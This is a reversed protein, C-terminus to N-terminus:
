TWPANGRPNRDQGGSQHYSARVRRTIGRDPCEGSADPSSPAPRTRPRLAELATPEAQLEGALRHVNYLRRNLDDFQSADMGQSRRDASTVRAQEEANRILHALIDSLGLQIPPV